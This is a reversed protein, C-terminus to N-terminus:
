KQDPKELRNQLLKQAYLQFTILNNFKRNTKLGEINMMRHEVNM